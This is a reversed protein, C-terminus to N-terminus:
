SRRVAFLAVAFGGGLSGVVVGAAFAWWANV